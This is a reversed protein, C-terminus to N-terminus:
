DFDMSNAGIMAGALTLGPKYGPISGMLGYAKIKDLNPLGNDFKKIMKNFLSPIQIGEGAEENAKLVPKQQVALNMRKKEENSIVYPNLTIPMYNLYKANPLCEFNCYIDVKFCNSSPLAGLSYFFM